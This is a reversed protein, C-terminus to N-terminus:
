KITILTATHLCYAIVFPGYRQCRFLCCSGEELAGEEEETLVIDGSGRDEDRAEKLETLEDVLRRFSMKTDEVKAVGDVTEKEL